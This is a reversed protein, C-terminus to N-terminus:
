RFGLKMSNKDSFAKNFEQVGAYVQDIAEEYSIDYLESRIDIEKIHAVSLDKYMDNQIKTMASEPANGNSFFQLFKSRFSSNPPDVRIKDDIRGPRNAINALLSQPYNTTALILTPIAFTKEVNDLLSLLSSESPRTYEQMEVGGIDEAVFILRKVGHTAYEFSKVFRSIEDAEIIDTHWLIIATDQKDAYEQCVKAVAVSKGCNHTVTFDGMVYLSDNTVTFGYYDDNPLEKLSFGTHLVSKIQKRKNAKKRNLKNPILSLDGSISVRYYTGEVYGNTTKCGKQCETKYAAFGLSRSLYIVDDALKELKSIFDCGGNASLHGDTDLIGALLELRQERSATKYEFPIHKNGLVNLSRLKNTVENRGYIKMGVYSKGTTFYLTQASTGSKNEIRYGINLDNAYDKLENLIENDMSTVSPSLTTGDGLWSGLIYPPIILEKKEFDVGTRWLKLNDKETKTLNLYEKVTCNVIDGHKRKTMNRSWKLSLMHNENVIFPSGKVPQIEYMKENGRVLKLVERPQSDPGMLMDGVVVEEVKKISGDHMLIETGKAHCGPNGFLLICRRPIGLGRKEYVDLKNFFCNAVKEIKETQIYESLLKEHNFEAKTLVMGAMTKTVAWIGPKVETPPLEDNEKVMEFQIMKNESYLAIDSESIEDGEKLDSLNTVKKVKFKIEKEM